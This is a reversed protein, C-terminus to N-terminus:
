AVPSRINRDPDIDMWGLVKFVFLCVGLREVLRVM